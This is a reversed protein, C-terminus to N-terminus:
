QCSLGMFPTYPSPQGQSNAFRNLDCGVINAATEGLLAAAVAASGAAQAAAGAAIAASTATEAASAASGAASIASRATSNANNAHSIGVAGLIAGAAGAGLTAWQMISSSGGVHQPPAGAGASPAGQPVRGAKTPVALTHGRRIEVASGEKELRLVGEKVTVVAMGELMAVDGRVNFGKAPAVSLAGLRLRLPGASGPHYMSVNGQELIVVVEDDRKLFSAATRQGLVVRSGTNMAVVAAGEAVRVTDGSFVVTDPQIAEGAMTADLSGAVTGIAASGGFAAPPTLMRFFVAALLVRSVLSKGTM